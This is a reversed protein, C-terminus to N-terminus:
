FRGWELRKKTIEARKAQIESQPIDKASEFRQGLLSKRQRSMIMARIYSDGLNRAQRNAYMRRIERYSHGNNQRSIAALRALREKNDVKYKKNKCRRSCCVQGKKWPKFERGCLDCNIPQYDRQSHGNEAYWDQRKAILSKTACTKSCNVAHRSKAEFECGCVRCAKQYILM